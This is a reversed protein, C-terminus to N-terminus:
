DAHEIMEFYTLPVKTDHTRTIWPHKLAQDISYRYVPSYATMKNILDMALNSFSSDYYFQKKNELKAKFKESSEGKQHLPHGGGSLLNYIIIGLSWMDISKSYEQNMAVEPAMYLMTGCKSDLLSFPSSANYKATLGFDILRIDSLDKLDHLLINEPKLDRHVIGQNHLYSVAEMVSKM